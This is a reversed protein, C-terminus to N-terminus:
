TGDGSTGRERKKSKGMGWESWGGAAWAVEGM